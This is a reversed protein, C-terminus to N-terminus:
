VLAGPKKLYKDIVADATRATVAIVTSTPNASGTQPFASAGLVFLNSYDWHQSYHNLVGTEPTPSMITGGQLHTTQYRTTTYRGVPAPMVVETAGMARAIEAAKPAMFAMMHRENDNWDMTMRLLPDGFQDKYVPDLDMYNTKYGIHEGTAGVGGIYDYTEIASKKWESGWRAKVKPSTTGFVAVPQAGGAGAALTGGRIFPLNSHDFVDGEFDGIRMGLTPGGIFRNLPKSFFATVGGGQIQHTLNSGVGDTGTKPDYPRGLGSLLLMRTNNFTFTALFVLDAPQFVEEGTSDVYTAGTVKANKGAGSHLLRRATAGTRISVTNQKRIVPILINSPHSKAGAMCGYFGCYGCNTCSGRVIGDANKFIQTNIAAAAPYPHYGLSKAATEFMSCIYAKKSPPMPYETSRPGEFINGGEIKRGMINGAKGSVGVLKETSALYPEIDAWTFGFDKVAHNEPLKKVGYRAVTQTYLDFTDAQYRPYSGGWHEGSGGVGTGPLFSVLQRVPRAKDGSTHRVTVTEQSCDQMMKLRAVYDIEDMTELYEGTTRAKGGRELVVVSLHTRAGLEKAMLLGTWGGGVILVDVKPLSKM